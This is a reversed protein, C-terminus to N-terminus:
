HIGTQITSTTPSCLPLTSRAARSASSLVPSCSLGSSASRNAPATKVRQVKEQLVGRLSRPPMHKHRWSPYLVPWLRCRSLSVALARRSFRLTAVGMVYITWCVNILICTFVTGQHGKTKDVDESGKFMDHLTCCCGFLGYAMSLGSGVRPRLSASRREGAAAADAAGRCRTVSLSLSNSRRRWAWGAQGISSPRAAVVQLLRYIMATGTGVQAGALGLAGGHEGPGRGLLTAQWSTELCGGTPCAAPLFSRVFLPHCLVGVASSRVFSRIFPHCLVGVACRRRVVSLSLYVASFSHMKM